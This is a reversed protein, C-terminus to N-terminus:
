LGRWYKELSLEANPLDLLPVFTLTLIYHLSINMVTRRESWFSTWECLCQTGRTKASSNGSGAATGEPFTGCAPM